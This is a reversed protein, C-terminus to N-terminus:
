KRGLMWHKPLGPNRPLTGTETSLRCHLDLPWTRLVMSWLLLLVVALVTRRREWKAQLLCNLFESQRRPPTTTM